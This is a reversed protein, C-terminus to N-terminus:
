GAKAQEVQSSITSATKIARVVEVSCTASTAVCSSVSGLFIREIFSLGRAGVFICDAEFQEAEQLLARRPDGAKVVPAAELGADQLLRASAQAMERGWDNDDQSVRRARRVLPSIIQGVMTLRVPEVVSVVRAQSGDPWNRRAVSDLAAEANSSGDFGLIIRAPSDKSEDECRAVRVSCVAENVVKQSVSGLILRGIASRGKSGVVLLDAQWEKAREILEWAPPGSGTETRVDWGPFMGRVRHCAELAMKMSQQLPEAAQAHLMRVRAAVEKSQAAEVIEFASPPPPPLMSDAASVVIAEGEYPLGAKQLDALASKSCDSGDYGILMRMKRNM